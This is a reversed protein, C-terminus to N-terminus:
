MRYIVVSQRNGIILDLLVELPYLLSEVFVLSHWDLSSVELSINEQWDSVICIM